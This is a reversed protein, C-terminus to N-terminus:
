EASPKDRESSQVARGGIEARRLELHQEEGDEPDHQEMRVLLCHWNRALWLHKYRSKGARRQELVLTELAGAETELTERRLRRIHYTKLREDDLLTYDGAQFGGDGCAQLQLQLQLSLPDYVPGPLSVEWGHRDERAVNREWDLSWDVSDKKRLPHHFRYHLPQVQQERLRLTSDETFEFWLIRAQSHMEWTGDGARSLRRVGEAKIGSVRTTYHASFPVPAMANDEGSLSDGTVGCLAGILTWALTRPKSRPIM